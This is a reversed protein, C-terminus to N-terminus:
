DRYRPITWVGRDSDAGLKKLDQYLRRDGGPGTYRRPWVKKIRDSGCPLMTTLCTAWDKLDHEKGCGKCKLAEVAAAEEKLIAEYMKRVKAAKKALISVKGVQLSPVKAKSGLRRGLETKTYGRELLANLLEWTPGAPILAHDAIADADVELIRKETEARVKKKTGARIKAVVSIAVGAADAVAKYGVGQRSLKKIHRRAPAAEVLGNWALKM